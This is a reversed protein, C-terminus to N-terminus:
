KKIADELVDGVFTGIIFLIVLFVVEIFVGIAGAAFLLLGGVFFAIVGFIIGLIIGDCNGEKFSGLARGEGTERLRLGAWYYVCTDCIDNKAESTILAYLIYIKKM